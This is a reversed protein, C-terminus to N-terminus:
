TGQSLPAYLLLNVVSFGFESRPLVLTADVAGFRINEAILRVPAASLRFELRASEITGFVGATRGSLSDQLYRTLGGQREIREWASYGSWAAAAAAAALVALAAYLLRAGLRPKPEAM